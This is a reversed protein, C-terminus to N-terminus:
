ILSLTNGRCRGSAVDMKYGAPCVCKFSGVTNICRGNCGGNKEECEDIDVLNLRLLTLSFFKLVPQYIVLTMSM